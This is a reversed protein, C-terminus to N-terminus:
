NARKLRPDNAPRKLDRPKREIAAPQTTDLPSTMEANIAINKVLFQTSQRPTVRPDNSPRVYDQPANATPESSSSDDKPSEPQAIEAIPEAAVEVEDSSLQEPDIAQVPATQDMTQEAFSSETEPKEHTQSDADSGNSEATGTDAIDLFFNKDVHVSIDESNTASASSWANMEAALKSEMDKADESDSSTLSSPPAPMPRKPVEATSRTLGAQAPATDQTKTNDRAKQGRDAKEDAGKSRTQSAPESAKESNEASFSAPMGAPITSKITGLSQDSVNASSVEGSVEARIREELSSRSGRKKEESRPKRNDPRRNPREGDQNQAEHRNSQGGEATQERNGRRRRNGGRRGQKDAHKDGGQEDRANRRNASQNGASQDETRTSLNDTLESNGDSRNDRSRGNGRRNRPNGQRGRNGGRNGRSRQQKSHSTGSSSRGSPAAETGAQAAEGDGASDGFLFAFIKAFFGKEEPQAARTARRPKAVSQNAQAAPASPATTQTNSHGTNQTAEITVMEQTVAAKPAVFKEEPKLLDDDTEEPTVQIEYSTEAGDIDTDKLRHVEYHPTVLDASGLIVIRTNQRKEIDAISERKENLLFTAVKLPVAARIEASREKKAEEEVLRLISLALSKTSRITGQGTCRPCVKSSTEGLSPRLRQRSMELLGFKSIKGIQVRARDMKLANMMRNEVSRNNRDGYMDIFDIVVLGGMDRLRLQRAIEDAAELNTQLATEEIDSGRTARASNIDISVLAETVDIVISGGSPLKVEREYASEIQGEIQYRNFLPTADEYHKVKHTENPMIQNVFGRALNYTAADDVQIEGIDSKFYDRIARIVVNSESFLFEPASKSDAVEKVKTWIRALYDLDAQLEESQRGIGATRVITSMGRPVTVSSLAEKLQARDSGDIRRSIGGGTPNNPMLVLYRGALSIFTTLAAGKNGREEKDVQVIVETGEQMVDGIKPRGGERRGPKFYEKSIEKMPLFGHREAGYEVFAAELSPEIRTIKGKYINAKKQERLRNEIDLDYLKQGDVLAVRIEEPQTANVLM